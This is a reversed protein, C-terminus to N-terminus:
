NNQILCKLTSSKPAIRFVKVRFIYVSMKFFYRRELFIKSRDSMNIQIRELMLNNNKQPRKSLKIPMLKEKSSIPKTRTSFKKKIKNKHETLVNQWNLFTLEEM